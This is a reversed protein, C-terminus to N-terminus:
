NQGRERCGFIKIARSKNGEGDLRKENGVM